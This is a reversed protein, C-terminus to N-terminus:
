LTGASTARQHMTALTMSTRLTLSSRLLATRERCGGCTKSSGIGALSFTSQLGLLSLSTVQMHLSCASASMGSAKCKSIGATQFRGVTHPPELVMCGVAAKLFGPLLQSFLGFRAGVQMIEAANIDVSELGVLCGDDLDQWRDATWSVDTHTATGAPSSM